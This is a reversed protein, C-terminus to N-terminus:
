SEPLAAAANWLLWVGQGKGLREGGGVTDQNTVDGLADRRRYLAEVEELEGTKIAMDYAHSFADGRSPDIAVARDFPEKAEIFPRGLFPGFHLRIEGLLYWGDFDTPYDRVVNMAHQEAEVPRGEELALSVQLLGRHRPSLRGGLRMATQAAATGQEHREAWSAARSIGYYALAFTSDIGVATEFADIASSWRRNRYESMGNLYAKLAEVSNTTLLALSDIRAPMTASYGALLQRALSGTLELVDDPSGTANAVIPDPEGSRYLSGSIQVRDSGVSTVNGLIYMGAGVRSAADRARDSNMDAGGAAMLVTHPDITRLEGAGDLATSLLHVLGEGLYGVEDSTGTASFPFVAVRNMDVDAAPTGGRMLGWAAAIGLVVAAAAGITWGKRPAGPASMATVPVTGGSPTVVAELLPVLEEASQWRDSPRKALCRMVLTELQAPVTSRQQSLPTPQESIHAALIQAPTGGSFPTVGTLLEYALVGFAYIDARHDVHPDAAAQEPAMYAPTGLAVGATTIGDQAQAESVAKAVGFDTVLAHRGSLMVNDPKIDRHVLGHEHAHALADAIERLLRVAEEIPLEGEKALKERLSQGSEYPMVYYLFGDAEGSDYLPLIHPHHLQAAIKVERLFREPGLAAALDPRLVKLAVPREHKLDNALYVIAMGGQGLKQQVEYRDALAARLRELDSM